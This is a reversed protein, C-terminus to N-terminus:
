KFFKKCIKKMAEINKDSVILEIKLSKPDELFLQEIGIDLEESILFLYKIGVNEQKSREIKSITDMSLGVKDALEKQRLGKLQRYARINRGLVERKNM